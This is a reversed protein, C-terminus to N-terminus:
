RIRERALSVYWQRDLHAPVKEKTIDGNEIFCREPTNAFKDSRGNRCKYIIGDSSRSAFVRYCNNTYTHGNHRVCEYASSLKVIKQFDVLSDSSHITVEVPTGNIMFERHAKNVIALDNDITSLSKVYAGKAEVEGFENIFLYNNTDKQYIKTIIPDFGLKVGTLMEWEYVIDDM